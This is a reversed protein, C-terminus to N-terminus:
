IPLSLAKKIGKSKLPVYKGEVFHGGGFIRAFIQSSEEDLPSPDTALMRNIADTVQQITLKEMAKKLEPLDAHHEIRANSLERMSDAIISAAMLIKLLHQQAKASSMSPRSDELAVDIETSFAELPVRSLIALEATVDDAVAEHQRTIRRWATQAAPIAQDEWWRKIRPANKMVVITGLVGAALVVAAGVVAPGRLDVKSFEAHGGIGGEGRFFGRFRGPTDRSSFLDANDPISVRFLEWWNNM